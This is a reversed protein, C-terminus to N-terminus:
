KLELRILGDSKIWGSFRSPYIIKEWDGKTNTIILIGQPLEGRTGFLASPGEYMVKTTTVIQRPWSDIWLDLMLPTAVALVFLGASKFSPKKKLMWLGVVLFLFGLSLLPGEAAVMGAKILYDSSDLPQELRTVELKEEVLQINQNLEKATYGSTQALIFHFRAMPWNNMQGLVTGMNYHWLGLDM